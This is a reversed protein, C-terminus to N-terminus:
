ITEETDERNQYEDLIEATEEADISLKQIFYVGGSIIAIIIVIFIPIM